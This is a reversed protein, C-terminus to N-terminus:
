PEPASRGWLRFLDLAIAEFPEVHVSVDGDHTAVLVWRHEELRFVELTQSDPKVFWLHTVDERAYVRLKRVRDLAETAPSLVECVWDPALTISPTAPPQPMRSQRWGALDPVIVDPGLHLEPEFLIWWGGPGGRGYQFPAGLEFGIASAALAHPVAPRPTVYLEGNLIEAVMHDPVKILDEYTAPRKALGSRTM